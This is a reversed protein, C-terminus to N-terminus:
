PENINPQPGCSVSILVARGSLGRSESSSRKVSLLGVSLKATASLYM